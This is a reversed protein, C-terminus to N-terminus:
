DCQQLNAESTLASRAGEGGDDGRACRAELNRKGGNAVSLATCEFRDNARRSERALVGREAILVNSQM